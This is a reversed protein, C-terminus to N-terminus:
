KKRSPSLSVPFIAADTEWGTDLHMVLVAQTGDPSPYLEFEFGVYIRDFTHQGLREEGRTLRWTQTREVGIALALVERGLALEYRMEGVQRRPAAAAVYGHEEAYRLVDGGVMRGFGAFRGGKVFRHMRQESAREGRRGGRGIRARTYAVLRSDPSWGHFTLSSGREPPRAEASMAALPAGVSVLALLSVMLARRPV